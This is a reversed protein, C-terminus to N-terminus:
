VLWVIRFRAKNSHTHRYLCAEGGAMEINKGELESSFSNLTEDLLLLWRFGSSM